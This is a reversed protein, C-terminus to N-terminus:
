VRTPKSGYIGPGTSYSYCICTGVTLFKQQVPIKGLGGVRANCFRYQMYYNYLSMRQAKVMIAEMQCFNGALLVLSMANSIIGRPWLVFSM